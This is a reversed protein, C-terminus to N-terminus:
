CRSRWWPQSRTHQGQPERVDWRQLGRHLVQARRGTALTFMRASLVRRVRQRISRSKKLGTTKAAPIRHQPFRCFAPRPKVGHFQVPQLWRFHPLFHEVACLNEKIVNHVFFSTTFLTTVQTYVLSSCRLRGNLIRDQGCVAISAVLRCRGSRHTNLLDARFHEDPSGTATLMPNGFNAHNLLDFADIRLVLAISEAIKTTKQLSLDTDSLGTRDPCQPSSQRLGGTACLFQLRSNHTQHVRYRSHVVRQRQGTNRWTGYQVPEVLADASDHRGSRQLDVSHSCEAPM